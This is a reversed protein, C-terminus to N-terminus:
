RTIETNPEDDKLHEPLLHQDDLLGEGLPLLPNVIANLILRDRETAM